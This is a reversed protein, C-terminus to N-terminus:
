PQRPPQNTQAAAPAAVNAGAQALRGYAENMLTQFHAYRSPGLRQEIRLLIRDVEGRDATFLQRAIQAGTDARFGFLRDIIATVSRLAVDSLSFKSRMKEVVDAMGNFAKDDALREPTPSNGLVVKDTQIFRKEGQLFEGFRAAGGNPVVENLIGQVRPSDFLLTTDNNRRRSAIAQDASEFLGSRFMRQQGPTLARYTEATVESGDRFAARGMDLAEQMDRNSSFLRRANSFMPGVNPVSDMADLLEKKVETLMRALNPSRRDQSRMARGIMEDISIKAANLREFTSTRGPQLAREVNAIAARLQRAIMPDVQDTVRLRWEQLLPGVTPAMDVGQAAAYTQRYAPRANRELEAMLEAETQRASAPPIEMLARLRDRIREQQGMPRGRVEPTMMPRTSIGTGPPMGNEPTIGTQRASIFSRAINGAEPQQRQVSGALRMLSNDADVLAMVPPQGDAAMVNQALRQRIDPMTVQARALQNAIAQDAAAESTSVRQMRPRPAMAGVSHPQPGQPVADGLVNRIGQGWGAVTPSAFDHIVGGVKGAGALVAPVAGGIAGGLAGTTAAGMARSEIGEGEGFGAVTGYTAGIGAGKLTNGLTTAAPTVVAFPGGALLGGITAGGQRAAGIGGAVGGAVRLGMSAVPNAEDYARDRARQYALAEDYPAGVRGGSVTNLAGQTAANAEDLFPGVFTGRALARGVDGGAQPSLTQQPRQRALRGQGITPPEIDTGPAPARDKAKEAAVFTDAWQRLATERDAGSLKAIDARVQDSPRNFDITRAVPAPTPVLDDFMGAPSPQRTTAQPVLDDFMGM